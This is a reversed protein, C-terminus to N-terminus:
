ELQSFLNEIEEDTTDVELVSDVYKKYINEESFEEDLYEKLQQAMKQKSNIAEYSNRLAKKYSDEEVYCWKTGENIVGKWVAAPEVEKLDYKIKTFLPTKKVKGSKENKVPAYLFDVQGSWAPAVVPLGSYAAEFIPM